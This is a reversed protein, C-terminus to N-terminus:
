GKNNRFKTVYLLFIEYFKTLISSEDDLLGRIHVTAINLSNEHSWRKINDFWKVLEKVFNRAFNEEATRVKSMEHFTKKLVFCFKFKKACLKRVARYLAPGSAFFGRLRRSLQAFPAFGTRGAWCRARIRPPPSQAGARQRCSCAPWPPPPPPPAPQQAASGTGGRVVWFLTCCKRGARDAPSAGKQAWVSFFYFYFKRM